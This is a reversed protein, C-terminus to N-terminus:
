WFASTGFHTTNLKKLRSSPNKLLHKRDPFPSIEIVTSHCMKSRHSLDGKRMKMECNHGSQYLMAILGVADLFKM